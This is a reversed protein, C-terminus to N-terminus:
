RQEVTSGSPNREPHPSFRASQRAVRATAPDPAASVPQASSARSIRKNIGKARTFGGRRSGFGLNEGM